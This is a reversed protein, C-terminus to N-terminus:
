VRFLLVGYIIETISWIIFIPAYGFFNIMVGAILASVGISINTLASVNGFSTGKENKGVKVFLKNYAPEIFGNTLGGFFQIIYVWYINRVMLFFLIRVGELMQTIFIIHRSKFKQLFKGAVLSTLGQIVFFLAVSLGVEEFGGFENFYITIFPAILGNLFCWFVDALMLTKFRKNM